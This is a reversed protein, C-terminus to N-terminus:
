DFSNVLPSPFGLEKAGPLFVSLHIKGKGPFRGSSKAQSWTSGQSGGGEQGAGGAGGQDGNPARRSYLVQVPIGM